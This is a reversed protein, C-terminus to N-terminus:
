KFVLLFFLHKEFFWQHSLFSGTLLLLYLGNVVRLGGGWFFFGWVSTQNSKNSGGVIYYFPNKRLLIIEGSTQM